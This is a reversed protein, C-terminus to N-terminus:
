IKTYKFYHTTGVFTKGRHHREIKREVFGMEYLQSFVDFHNSDKNTPKIWTNAPYSLMIQKHYAPIEIANM